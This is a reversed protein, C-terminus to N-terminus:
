SLPEPAVLSGPTPRWLAFKSKEQSPTETILELSDRESFIHVLHKVLLSLSM